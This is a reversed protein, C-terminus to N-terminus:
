VSNKIMNVIYNKNFQENIQDFLNISRELQVIRVDSGTNKGAFKRRSQSSPLFENLMILCWKIGLLPYVYEIRNIFHEVPDMVQKVNKLFLSHFREPVPKDPQLLADCVMKVPDDWGAYEFDIFYLMGDSNRIANHFGHDSPSLTRLSPNLIYTYISENSEVQSVIKRFFPLLNDNIYASTKTAIPDIPELNSFLAFRTKIKNVYDKFTFCADSALPLNQAKPTKRLQHMQNLLETLLIVDTGSIANADVHSGQIFQYIGTHTQVDSLLPKPINKVGLERLFSLMLFESTLRDRTDAPSFFYQKVLVNGSPGLAHFVRNNRGGQLPTLNLFSFGQLQISTDTM